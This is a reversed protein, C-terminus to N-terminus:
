IENGYKVVLIVFIKYLKLYTGRSTINGFRRETVEKRFTSVDLRQEDM